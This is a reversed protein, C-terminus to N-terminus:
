LHKRRGPPSTAQIMRCGSCNGSSRATTKERWLWNKRNRFSRAWLRGSRKWNPKKRGPTRGSRKWLTTWDRPWFITWASFCAPWVSSKRLITSCIVRDSSGNARGRLSLQFGDKGSMRTAAREVSVEFGRYSGFPFKASSDRTVEKVGELLRDKIKESDKATFTKGDATLEVLIKEKGKEMVTRTHSDRRRINETYLNEEKAIGWVSSVDRITEAHEVVLAPKLVRQRFIAAKKASAPRAEGGHKRATEPSLGKDYDLELSELLSHEPDSRMLGRNTQSNLHGYKRVFTDYQSNLRQRLTAMRGEDGDSKEENLRERLIHRPNSDHGGSALQRNRKQGASSRLRKRRIRRRDQLYDEPKAARRM